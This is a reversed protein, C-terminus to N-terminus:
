DQRRQQEAAAVVEVDDVWQDMATDDNTCSMYPGACTTHKCQFLGVFVRNGERTRELTSVLALAEIM